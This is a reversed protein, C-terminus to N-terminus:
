PTRSTDLKDLPYWQALASTTRCGWRQAQEALETLGAIEWRCATRAPVFRADTATEIEAALKQAFAVQVVPGSMRLLNRNVDRNRGQHDVASSSVQLHLHPRSHDRRTDSYRCYTCNVDLRVPPSMKNGVWSQVTDIAAREGAHVADTIAAAEKEYGAETVLDLYFGVSLPAELVLEPLPPRCAQNLEVHKKNPLMDRYRFM